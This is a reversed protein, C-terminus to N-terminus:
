VSKRLGNARREEPLDDKYKLRIQDAIMAIFESNTPKGRSNQITYGFYANLVEVDGRDWAVEIAHRIAREVRSSTTEFHEAVAPYLQKTVSNIIKIDKLSMIIADRLYHYGKIHAPVGIQHLIDTVIIEWQKDSAGEQVTHTHDADMSCIADVRDAIISVEVPRLICHCDPTEMLVKETFTNNYSSTVIFKPMYEGTKLTNIVGIADVHRMQADMIVLEPREDQIASLVEFGDRKRFIVDYGKERLKEQCSVRFDASDDSILIKKRNNM